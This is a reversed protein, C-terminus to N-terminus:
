RQNLSAPGDEFGHPALIAAALGEEGPPELLPRLSESKGRALHLDRFGLRGEMAQLRHVPPQDLPQRGAVHRTPRQPTHDVPPEKGQLLVHQGLPTDTLILGLRQDLPRAREHLLPKGLDRAARGRQGGRQARIALRARGTVSGDGLPDQRPDAALRVDPGVDLADGADLALDIVEARQAKELAEEHHQAVGAM